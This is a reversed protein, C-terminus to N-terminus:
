KSQRMVTSALKSQASSIGKLAHRKIYAGALPKGDAGRLGDRRFQKAIEDAINLQSPYLDKAKDRKIIEYARARAQEKWPEDGGSASIAVVPATQAPAPMAQAAQQSAEWKARASLRATEEREIRDFEEREISLQLEEQEAQVQGALREGLLREIDDKRKLSDAEALVAQLRQAAPSVNFFDLPDTLDFPTKDNTMM